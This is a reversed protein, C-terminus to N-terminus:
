KQAVAAGTRPGQAAPAQNAGSAANINNDIVDDARAAGAATNPRGDQHPIVPASEILDQSERPQEFIFPTLRAQGGPHRDRM